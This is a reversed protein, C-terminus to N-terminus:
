SAKRFKVAETFEYECRLCEYTREDGDSNIPLIRVLHMRTGCSPCRPNAIMVAAVAVLSTM